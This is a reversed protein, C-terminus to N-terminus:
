SSWFLSGVRAWSVRGKIKQPQAYGNHSRTEIIFTLGYSIWSSSQLPEGVGSDQIPLFRRQSAMHMSEQIVSHLTQIVERGEGPPGATHTGGQCLDPSSQM